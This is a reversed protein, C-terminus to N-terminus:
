EGLRKLVEAVFDDDLYLGSLRLREIVPRAAPIAGLRKAMLVLGVSGLYAIGLRASCRRAALDDLVVEADPDGQAVALVATEGHDLNCSRVSEPVQPRPVISLWGAQGIAQVTPDYPGKRGIEAIVADPVVVEAGGLRLLDLHGAKTLLILPSANM